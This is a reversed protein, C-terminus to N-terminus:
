NIILSKSVCKCTVYSGRPRDRVIKKVIGAAAGYTGARIEDIEGPTLIDDFVVMEDVHGLMDFAAAAYGRYITGTGVFINVPSIGTKDTGLIAGAFDDWIRVRYSRDS